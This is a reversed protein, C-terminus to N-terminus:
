DPLNQDRPTARKLDEGAPQGYHQDQEALFQLEEATSTRGLIANRHPFRGFRQVISLHGRAYALAEDLGASGFLALARSQDALRESHMFPMYLFSKYAPPLCRDFGRKVAREAVARAKDDTAFARPTGRFMHRPMQDFLLCLAVSGEPSHAWSELEGAAARAFIEGFRARIADDFDPTPAFWSPTTDEAFWFDLVERMEEM